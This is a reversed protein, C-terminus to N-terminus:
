DCNSDCDFENRLLGSKGHGHGHHGDDPYIVGGSSSSEGCKGNWWVLSFQLRLKCITNSGILFSCCTNNCTHFFINSQVILPPPPNFLNILPTVMIIWNYTLSHFPNHNIFQSKSFIKDLTQTQIFSILWLILPFIRQRLFFIANM